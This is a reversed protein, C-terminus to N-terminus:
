ICFKDWVQEFDKSDTEFFTTAPNGGSVFRKAGSYGGFGNKSNVTGCAVKGHVSILGFEASDPDKLRAKVATRAAWQLDSAFQEAPNPKNDNCSSIVSAVVLLLVIATFFLEVKSPEKTTM